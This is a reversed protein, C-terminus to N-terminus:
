KPWHEKLHEKLQPINPQQRKCVHCKLPLNLLKAVDKDVTVRGKKKVMAILDKSDIFYETTFSNWHKKTKFCTSDFDQSIVHLHLQSMSPIAHYGLRFRLSDKEPCQQIVKEGLAHMHELLKLHEQTVKSLTSISQWPLVLWHYRAKPYKDKIVVAKEDKYVQMDPNQMSVKLGQAWYELCPKKNVSSGGSSVSSSSYSSDCAQPAMQEMEALKGPMREMGGTELEDQPRKGGKPEVTEKGGCAGMEESFQVTYPYLNNVIHLIQGPKLKIERDKGIDVLDVSTPNVGIQKVQVYGKNCDAKLQVQRRSCKKDTIETEPGRGLMVMELHPLKIRQCARDKSVLWCVRMTSWAAM